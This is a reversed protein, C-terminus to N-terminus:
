TEPFNAFTVVKCEWLRWMAEGSKLLSIKWRGDDTDKNRPGYFTAYHVKLSQYWIPVRYRGIGLAWTNSDIVPNFVYSRARLHIVWTIETRAVPCIDLTMVPQAGNRGETTRMWMLCWSYLQFNVTAWGRVSLICVQWWWVCWQTIWVKGFHM